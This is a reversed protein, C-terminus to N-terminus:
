IYKTIFDFGYALGLSYLLISMPKGLLIICIYERFKMTSLGALYCLFDDPAVPFFIALAFFKSFHKNKLWHNYNMYKEIGFIKIMFGRGYIRSIIFACVSGLVIGIYNYVFGMVPGFLLVGALLSLGGPIIPIVVQIIQFIIFTLWAWWGFKKMFTQISEVSNFLGKRALVITLFVIILLIIATLINLITSLKIKKM